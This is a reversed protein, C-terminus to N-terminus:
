EKTAVRGPAAEPATSVVQATRAAEAVVPKRARIEALWRNLVPADGPSLELTRQYLAAAREPEGLYLDLLIALNLHPAAAGADAQLAAEYAARAAALDGARRQLVGLQNLLAADGPAKELVAQVQKLETPLREDLREAKGWRAPKLTALAAFSQRVGEDYLGQTSRRANAEHLEIAKEEFPFAQEELMVDYQEREAKSLKKPRESDILARGFDQYLAASLFTAQTTVEAVGVEAAAAYAQLVLEMRAKKLKLQRALPEVLRVQRYAALQPETLSLAAQGALTRTRATRAEGGAADAAVVAQLLESTRATGAGGALRSLAVQKWRAEVAAELPQPFRQLYRDWARMAVAQPTAPQPAVAAAAAQRKRRAAATSAAKAVRAPPLAVPVAVPGAQEAVAHYLEAAQWLAGRALAPDTAAAAVQEFEAAALAKRDLELYALALRQPVEAQLAHDPHERRFAELATAAASWDKLGILAAAADFQATARVASGAPLALAAIRAFHGVADRAQGASRAAEGQKYIAAAQRETFEARAADREGVLALVEAYATEAEGFNGADFAQHAIVTWAVRRLAPAPQLALAQRAVAVAETGEGLAWLQEAAHTLVSAARADGAYRDAFRRASAVAQRQLAARQDAAAAKEIQAYALLAAYGADAGRAIRPEGYAVQEYELVAQDHRRDETLLEALLFRQGAAEASATGAPYSALLERYWRVAEQVDAGAKSQQALAHHHRALDALHARVLPQAREWGAPNARRFESAAGYRLVHDKKAQLALTPLGNKEYIEIVRAQLLPAQAHLPQRRVFAAYTDAADKVREQRIYLEGLQQYVRFQYGERLPGTVYPPVSAAGDLSALGISAVRFTDEVLERDARTLAKLEALGTLERQDEPLGGLKTDLVAFFPHLADEVRGLKFLSWGQMYLARERFPTTRGGALVTAYAREAAQYDRTAFLLEGRRFHAEDAHETDPHAAVLRTLTALADELRGGQEQARALQYLVRDARADNPYAKLLAQYRAIAEAYDKASQEPGEGEASRRDARDMALDGLRRMAEPRQPAEPAAALFAQYAAIAREETVAVREDGPLAVERQALAALTPQDDGPLTRPGACGALLAALAALVAAHLVSTRPASM